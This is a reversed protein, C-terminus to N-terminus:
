GVHSERQAQISTLFVEELKKRGNGILEQTTGKQVITGQHIIAIEQCLKEAEELYHTTLLVTKGKQNLEKLFEWVELRLEVDIGATPEDLILIDPDHVLAKLLLLRRKLGGSLKIAKEDRKDWLGFRKLLFEVKKKAQKPSLGFYGGQFELIKEISFFSDFNFEQPVLGIRRRCELYNDTVDKGFVLVEGSTRNCLGTLIHITTTKGAGNPGLFGFFAGSPVTLSIGKLAETKSYRKFLNRIEIAHAV